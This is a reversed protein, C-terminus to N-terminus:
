YTNLIFDFPSYGFLEFDNRYINFLEMRTSNSLHKIWPTLHLDKDQLQPTTIKKKIHLKNLLRHFDDEFSELKIIFNPKVEEKCVACKKWQPLIMDKCAFVDLDKENKM